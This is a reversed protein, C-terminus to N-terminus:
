EIVEHEDLSEMGTEDQEQEQEGTLWIPLAAKIETEVNSPLTYLKAFLEIGKIRDSARTDESTTIEWLTELLEYLRTKGKGKANLFDQVDRTLNKPRGNKNGSEGKKWQYPRIADLNGEKNM